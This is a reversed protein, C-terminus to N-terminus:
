DFETLISDMYLIMLCFSISLIYSKNFIFYKQQKIVNYLCFSFLVVHIIFFSGTKDVRFTDVTYLCKNYALVIILLLVVLDPRGFMEFILVLM